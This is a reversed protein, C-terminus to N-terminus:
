AGAAAIAEAMPYGAGRLLQATEYLPLGVVNSYSGILSIVFAGAAGQIAYAGAKGRWAGSRLYAAIEDPGLRKFRVRTEVKRIRMEGSPAILCLGTTVRHARGSLLTLHARARAEDEPKDLVRRGAAVVTDAALILAGPEASRCASAKEQALRVALASPTEEARPTEDIAAPWVREPEVGIQRLLDLRRASASALVLSPAAPSSM